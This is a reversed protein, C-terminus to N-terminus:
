KPQRVYYLGRANVVRSATNRKAVEAFFEGDSRQQLRVVRYGTSKKGDKRLGKVAITFGVRVPYTRETSAAVRIEKVDQWTVPPLSM